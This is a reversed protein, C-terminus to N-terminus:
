FFLIRTAPSAQDWLIRALEDNQVQRIGSLHEEVDIGRRELSPAHVLYCLSPVDGTAAVMEQVNFVKDNPPVEHTGYL